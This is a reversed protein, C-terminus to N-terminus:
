AGTKSRHIHLEIRSDMYKIWKRHVMNLTRHIPVVVVGSDQVAVVILRLIKKVNMCTENFKEIRATILKEM